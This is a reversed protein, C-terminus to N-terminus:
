FLSTQKELRKNIEKVFEEAQEDEIQRYYAQTEPDSAQEKLIRRREEIPLRLFGQRIKERTASPEEMM